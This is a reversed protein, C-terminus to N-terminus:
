NERNGKEAEVRDKKRQKVLVKFSQELIPLCFLPLQFLHLEDLWMSVSKDPNRYLCVGEASMHPKITPRRGDEPITFDEAEVVQLEGLESLRDDIQKEVQEM